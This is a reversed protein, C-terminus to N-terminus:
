ASEELSGEEAAKDAKMAEVEHKSVVMKIEQDLNYIRAPMKILPYIFIGAIINTKVVNEDVSLSVVDKDM